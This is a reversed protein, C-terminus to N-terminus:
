GTTFTLMDPTGTVDGNNGAITVIVTDSPLTDLVATYTTTAGEGLTLSAPSLTLGAPDNDTM